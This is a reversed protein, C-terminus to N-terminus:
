DESPMTQFVPFKRVIEVLILSFFGGKEATKADDNEMANLHPLGHEINM